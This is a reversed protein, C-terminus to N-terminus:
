LIKFSYIGVANKAEKCTAISAVRKDDVYISKGSFTADIGYENFLKECICDLAMSTDWYLLEKSQELVTALTEKM